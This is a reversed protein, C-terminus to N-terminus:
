EIAVIDSLEFQRGSGVYSMNYAYFYLDRGECALRLTYTSTQSGQTYTYEQTSIIYNTPETYMFNGNVGLARNVKAYIKTANFDLTGIKIKNTKNPSCIGTAFNKIIAIKKYNGLMKNINEPIEAVSTSQVGGGRVIVNNINTIGKKLKTELNETRTIQEKLSM